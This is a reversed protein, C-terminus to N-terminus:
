LASTLFRPSLGMQKSLWTLILVKIGPPNDHIEPRVRTLVALVHCMEMKAADM